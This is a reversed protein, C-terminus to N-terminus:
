PWRDWPRGTGHKPFRPLSGGVEVTSPVSARVCFAFLVVFAFVLYFVFIHHM